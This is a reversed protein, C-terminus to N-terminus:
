QEEIFFERIKNVFVDTTNKEKIVNELYDLLSDKNREFLNMCINLKSYLCQDKSLGRLGDYKKIKKQLYSRELEPGFRVKISSIIEEPIYVAVKGMTDKTKMVIRFEREYEWSYDKIFYNDENFCKLDGFVDYWKGKFNIRRASDRYYVWGPYIEFDIGAKIVEGTEVVEATQISRIFELMRAPTFGISVGEGTLGAYLYWMPIKETDSNCFCLAHVNNAVKEHLQAEAKDNMTSLTNVYFKRGSLIKSATDISTYYWFSYRSFSKATGNLDIINMNRLDKTTISNKQAM